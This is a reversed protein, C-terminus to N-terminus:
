KNIKKAEGRFRVERDPLSKGTSIKSEPSKCRGCFSKHKENGKLRRDEFRTKKNLFFCFFHKCKMQLLPQQVVATFAFDFDSRFRKQALM